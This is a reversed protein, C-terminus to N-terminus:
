VWHQCGRPTSLLCLLGSCKRGSTQQDMRFILTPLPCCYRHSLSRTTIRSSHTARRDGCILWFSLVPFSPQWLPWFLSDGPLWAFVLSAPECYNTVSCFAPRCYLAFM